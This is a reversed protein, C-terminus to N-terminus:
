LTKAMNTSRKKPLRLLRCIHWAFISDAAMAKKIKDRNHLRDPTQLGEVNRSYDVEDATKCTKTYERFENLGVIKGDFIWWNKSLYKINAIRKWAYIFDGAVLERGKSDPLALMM